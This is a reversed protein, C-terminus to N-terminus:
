QGDVVYPVVGSLVPRQADDDFVEEVSLPLGCQSCYQSDDSNEHGCAKCIM